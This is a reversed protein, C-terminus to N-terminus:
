STSAAPKLSLSFLATIFRDWCDSVLQHIYHDSLLYCALPTLLLIFIQPVIMSNTSQYVVKITRQTLVDESYFMSYHFLGYINLFTLLNLNLSVETSCSHDTIEKHSCTKLSVSNFLSSFLFVLLKKYEGVDRRCAAPRLDHGLDECMVLM